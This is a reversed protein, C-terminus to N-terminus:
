KLVRMGDKQLALKFGLVEVFRSRQNSILKVSENGCGVELLTVFVASTSKKQASFTAHWQRPYSGQPDVPFLDTQDFRGAPSSLMRVCLQVGDQVIVVEKASPIRMEALAHINWEWARQTDSKLSDFVVITSPRLYAVSRIARTLQGGYAERADGTVLDYRETTEFHTLKGKATMLDHLQGRGGDFTIANHAKTSKYWNTWHPSGYYDYYGSDIALAKGQAHIVFSNQDAHSHNYSGFPSSKFYVSTRLRNGLDSHMAAWGISPIFSANPTGAPLTGVVNDFYKYPGILLATHASQEGQLTRGYWDALPASLHAAFVKAQTAWVDSFKKETEDGFLGSPSGPPLFYTIYDGYGRTWPTQWLDIGLPRKLLDWAIFHVYLMSWHAYATGNSFGGDDGGWPIPKAVYRPVVDEFCNDFVIEVGALVTCIVALHALNTVGHSDFPWQDLKRGHDLGYPADRSLMDIVRPRIASLLQEREPPTWQDYLWDYALSLTWAISRGAQDNSRFGTMGQPSWNSLNLSRAKAGALSSLDKTKHWHMALLLINAGEESVRNHLKSAQAAADPVALGSSELAPETPYPLSNLVLARNSLLKSIVAENSKLLASDNPLSRPHSLIQVSALQPQYVDSAHVTQITGGVMAFMAWIFFSAKSLVNNRCIPLFDRM